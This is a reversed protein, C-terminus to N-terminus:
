TVITSRVHRVVATSARNQETTKRLVETLKITVYKSITTKNQVGRAACNKVLM